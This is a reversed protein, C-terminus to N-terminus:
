CSALFEVSATKYLSPPSVSLPQGPLDSVGWGQFYGLDAQGPSQPLQEPQLPAQDSCPAPQSASQLDRGVWLTRGKETEIRSSGLTRTSGANVGSELGM